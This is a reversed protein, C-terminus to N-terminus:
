ESGSGSDTAKSQQGKMWAPAEPIVATGDELQAPGKALDEIRILAIARDDLCSRTEGIEVENVFIASGPEPAQGDFRVPLLRKRVKGRYKMRAAIEQGVYCGKEFDVGNLADLNAELILRKNVEIDRSSDPIGLTLRLREYDEFSGEVFGPHNSAPIIARHGMGPHRPDRYILSKGEPATIDGLIAWVAYSETMDTFTVDARLKYMELRDILDARRAAECDLLLEFPHGERDCDVMFFDFLYKGQPTLLAAYVAHGPRVKEVDNTVLEQLFSRTDPGSICIVGRLSLRIETPKQMITPDGM